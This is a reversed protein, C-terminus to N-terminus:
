AASRRRAFDMPLTVNEAVTLTPLLQFFQFVLGVTRERWAALASESLKGLDTGAVLIQGSTLRDIGTLLNLLTTKGSGSRGAVAVFEGPQIDLDIGAVAQAGSPLAYTKIAGRVRIAADPM